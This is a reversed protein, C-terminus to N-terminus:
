GIGAGSQILKESDHSAGDKFVIEFGTLCNRTQLARVLISVNKRGSQSILLGVLVFLKFRRSNRLAAPEIAATLTTRAGRLRMERTTSGASGTALEPGARHAAFSSSCDSSARPM